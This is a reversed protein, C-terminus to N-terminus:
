EEAGMQSVKTGLAEVVMERFRDLVTPIRESGLQIDVLAGASRLRKVAEDTKESPTSGPLSVDEAKLLVPASEVFEKAEKLGIGTLGRVEKIVQIKKQGFDHLMVGM